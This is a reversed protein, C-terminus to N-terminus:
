KIRLVSDEVQCKTVTLLYKNFSVRLGTQVSLSSHYTVNWHALFGLVACAPRWPMLFYDCKGWCFVFLVLCSFDGM